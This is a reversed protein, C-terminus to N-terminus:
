ICKLFSDPIYTEEGCAEIKKVSTTKHSNVCSKFTSDLFTNRDCAKIIASPVKQFEISIKCILERELSPNVLKHLLCTEKAFNYIKEKFYLEIMSCDMVQPGDEFSPPLLAGLNIELYAIENLRQEDAKMSNLIQAQNYVNESTLYDKNSNISQITEPCRNAYLNTTSILIIGLLILKKM